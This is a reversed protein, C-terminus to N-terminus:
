KAEAAMAHLIVNIPPAREPKVTQNVLFHKGDHTVDYTWMDTSSNPPRSHIVFLGREGTVSFTGETSVSAETLMHKPGVFFIAKGDGHWRPENGGGHSVQWKGNAGPFTTVYVEWDGTEDSAYAVWKGDPSIQGNVKNATGALFPRSKGGDVPLLVLDYNGAHAQVSAGLSSTQFTSLIERDGPTWSNPLIETTSDGIPPLSKVTELGSAKRLELNGSVSKVTRYAVTSGDRSWVPAVEEAPDFTFRSGGGRALDFIWVDVNSAKLDNNDFAVQKGDPSLSPNAIVGIPGIRGSERGNEDLWTLQSFNTASEVTYIVNSNSAVSFSGYYTSPDRATRRAIVQSTGNLKGASLDLAVAVLAGNDDIYYLRGEAYAPSCRASVLLVKELKSLSSLYIADAADKTESFGGAFMLFHDGDPLFFPWRHSAESPNSLKETAPVAGSGDANVRWLPGGSDRAYLIVNKSNWSGGRPAIGTTALNQPGGGAIASKRLKGKAFFAVWVDDPSWFPYSAGESEPITHAAANGIRQVWVMPSGDSDGPAIYALFKGDPSIALHSAEGAVSIAFEQREVPSSRRLIAFTLGAGLVGAIAAIAALKGFRGPVPATSAPVAGSIDSTAGLAFWLDRASQFRDAPKKELCHRVTRDLGPAVRLKTTDIEPPDEKLIANLTEISTDGRFARRGTLMEYLTAGFSFIDARHDVAQGRVQEPAMYGTTGMVVGPNTAAAITATAGDANAAAAEQAAMKALGFDLIKVRGDSTLFLNEPKLDRHVIKKEHAAALGDAVQRAYEVAKRSPIPGHELVQRLSEGELLESVLYFVGNQSGTDFISLVNPHSLAAVARAEQEFRRMREEDRAFAEPLIKVAVDRNLRTDRARFVEGMGGAGIPSVIQYPGLKDGASISM